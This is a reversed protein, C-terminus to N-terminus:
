LVQEQLPPVQGLKKLEHLTLTLIGPIINESTAMREGTVLADLHFFSKRTSLYQFYHRYLSKGFDAESKKEEILLYRETPLAKRILANREETKQKFAIMEKLIEVAEVEGTHCLAELSDLPVLSVELTKPLGFYQSAVTYMASLEEQRDKEKMYRIMSPGCMLVTQAPNELLGAQKQELLSIVLDCAINVTNRLLVGEPQVSKGEIVMYILEKTFDAHQTILDLSKSFTKKLINGDPLVARDFLTFDKQMLLRQYQLMADEQEGYTYMEVTSGLVEQATKLHMEMPKRFNQVLKQLFNDPITSDTFELYPVLIAQNVGNQTIPYLNGQYQCYEPRDITDKLSQTSLINKLPVGLQAAAQDSRWKRGLHPTMANSFRRSLFALEGLQVQNNTTVSVAFSTEPTKM